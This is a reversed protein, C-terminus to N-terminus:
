TTFSGGNVEITQGTVWEAEKSALWVCAAGKLTDLVATIVGATLGAARMANTGGTRGSGVERVDQGSFVKVVLYGSPISGIIYSLAVILFLM